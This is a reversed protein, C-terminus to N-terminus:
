LKLIKDLIEDRNSIKRQKSTEWKHCKYCVYADDQPLNHWDHSAIKCGIFKYYPTVFSDKIIMKRESWVDRKLYFLISLNRRFRKFNKFKLDMWLSFSQRSVGM